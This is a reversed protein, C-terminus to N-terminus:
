LHSSVSGFAYGAAMPLFRLGTEMPSYTKVFQMYLTLAFLVGFMSFTMIAIAGSGALLHPNKFLSTDLMPIDTRRERLYFLFGFILSSM